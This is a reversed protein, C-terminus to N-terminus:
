SELDRRRLVLGGAAFVLMLSAAGLLLAFGIGDEATGGAGAQIGGTPFTGTDTGASVNRTGTQVQAFQTGSNHTVSGSRGNSQGGSGGNSQGGSGGGSPTSNQPSQPAVPRQPSSEDDEDDEGDEDEADDGPNDAQDPQDEADPADPPDEADPPDAQDDPDTVPPTQAQAVNGEVGSQAVIAPVVLALAAVALGLMLIRKLM